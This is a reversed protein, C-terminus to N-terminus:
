DQETQKSYTTLRPLEAATLARRPETTQVGEEISVTDKYGMWNKMLFIGSAPNIKGSLICQDMFGNIVARADEMIETREADCNVGKCWLFVTQRSVGIALALTEVGPRMSSRQCFSFYDDIRQRLEANSQPKGQNRLDLLCRVTDQVAAASIENLGSQPYNGRSM